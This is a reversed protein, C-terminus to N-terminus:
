VLDDMMLNKFFLILFTMDPNVRYKM